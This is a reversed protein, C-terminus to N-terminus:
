RLLYLFVFRSISLAMPLKAAPGLLKHLTQVCFEKSGILILVYRGLVVPIICRPKYEFLLYELAKTKIHPFTQEFPTAHVSRTIWANCFVSKEKYRIVCGVNFSRHIWSFVQLAIMANYIFIHLSCPLAQTQSQALTM